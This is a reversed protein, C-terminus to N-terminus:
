KIKITTSTAEHDNWSGLTWWLSRKKISRINRKREKGEDEM